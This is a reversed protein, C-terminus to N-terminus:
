KELLEDYPWGKQGNELILFRSIDMGQERMYSWTNKAGGGGGPCVIIIPTDGGKYEDIFDDLKARDVDSEAPYAYTPIAGVIHANNFDEEPQIDIIIMEREDEIDTKLNEATIYKYEDDVNEEESSCGTIAFGLIFVSILALVNFKKM